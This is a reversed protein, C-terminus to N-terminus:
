PRLCPLDFYPAFRGFCYPQFWSPWAASVFCVFGELIEHDEHGDGRRGEHDVFSKQPVSIGRLLSIGFRSSAASGTYALVSTVFNMLVTIFSPLLLVASCM